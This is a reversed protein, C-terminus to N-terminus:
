DLIEIKKLAIGKGNREYILRLNTGNDIEYFGLYSQWWFVPTIIKRGDSLQFFLRMMNKSAEARMILKAFYEGEKDIFRYDSTIIHEERMEDRTYVKNAIMNLDKRKRCTLIIYKNIYKYPQRSTSNNQVALSIIVRCGNKQISFTGFNDFNRETLRKIKFRIDTIRKDRITSITATQHRNSAEKLVICLVAFLSQESVRNVTM